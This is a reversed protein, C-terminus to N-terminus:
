EEITGVTIRIKKGLLKDFDHHIYEDTEPDVEETGSQIRVFMTESNGNDFTAIKAMGCDETTLEAINKDYPDLHNTTTLPMIGEFIYKSVSGM